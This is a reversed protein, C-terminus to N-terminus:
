REMSHYKNARRPPQSAAVSLLGMAVNWGIRVGAGAFLAPGAVATECLDRLKAHLISILHGAPTGELEEISLPSAARAIVTLSTKTYGPDRRGMRVIHSTAVMPLTLPTELLNGRVTLLDLWREM